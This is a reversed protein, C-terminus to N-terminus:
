RGSEGLTALELQTLLEVATGKLGIWDARPVRHSRLNVRIFACAKASAVGEGFLRVTPVLGGSGVELVVLREVDAAWLELRKQSEHYRAGHWNPGDDLLLVNPRLISGCECAPLNGVWRLDEDINWQSRWGRLEYQRKCLPEFCQLTRISGHCETVLSADWGAKEFLGDVNSTFIRYGQPMRRCLDHLARYGDHPDAGAFMALTSGHFGYALRPDNFFLGRTSLDM